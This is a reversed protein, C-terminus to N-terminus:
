KLKTTKHHPASSAKILSNCIPGNKSFRPVKILSKEKSDVNEKKMEECNREKEIIRMDRERERERM